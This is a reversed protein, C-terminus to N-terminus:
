IPLHLYQFSPSSFINQPAILHQLFPFATIEHVPWPIPNKLLSSCDSMLTPFHTFHFPTFYSPNILDLCINSASSSITKSHNTCTNLLHIFPLLYRPIPLCSAYNRQIFPFPSLFLTFIISFYTIRLLTHYM